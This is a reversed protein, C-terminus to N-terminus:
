STNTQNNNNQKRKDPNTTLTLPIPQSKTRSSSMSRFKDTDPSTVGAWPPPASSSRCDVYPAKSFRRRGRRATPRHLCLFAPLNVRRRHRGRRDSDPLSSQPTFKSCVNRRPSYNLGSPHRRQRRRQQQRLGKECHSLKLVSQAILNFNQM